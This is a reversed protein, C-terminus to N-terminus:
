CCEGENICDYGKQKLREALFDVAQESQGLVEESLDWLSEKLEGDEDREVEVVNGRADVFDGDFDELQYGWDETSEYGMYTVMKSGFADHVSPSPLLHKIVDPCGKLVEDVEDKKAVLVFSSSSSNSVFGKRTKM